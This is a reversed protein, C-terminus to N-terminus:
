SKNYRACNGDFKLRLGTQALFSSMEVTVNGHFGDSWFTKTQTHLSQVQYAEGHRLLKTRALSHIDHNLRGVDLRRTTM